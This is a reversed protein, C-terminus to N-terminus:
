NRIQKKKVAPDPKRNFAPDDPDVGAPGAKFQEVSIVSISHTRPHCVNALNGKEM